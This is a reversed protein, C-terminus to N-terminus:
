PLGPKAANWAAVVDRHTPINQLFSNRWAADPITAAQALLANVARALWEAARADGAGSTTALVRYCTLEILRPEHLGEMAAGGGLETLLVDVERIALAADGEELAVRALGASADYHWPSGIELALDRAQQFADRAAAHQGLALEVDGLWLLSHSERDRARTTVASDLQARALSLAEANDGRWLALNSLHGLTVGEVVRDGNARLMRLAEELDRQAHALEGLNLWTAGLNSLSIAENQRDGLDRYILLNQRTMELAGVVDGKLNAVIALANLLFAENKRLGRERAEPLGQEAFASGGDMDGQMARAVSLLRLAHLRLGHNGAQTALAILQRATSECAPWDAMRMARYGRRWAVYAHCQGDDIVDALQELAEISAMQETRRGQLELTQERVVLLRWRLAADVKATADSQQELLSLAKDVHALATDHGFRERAHEAARAHFEAANASDGAREYHEAITGLFDSARLGTLSALWQAVKAHLERKSRKLVTDYTVQHLIQHHFAYERLEDDGMNKAADARPLALERQVLDPLTRRAHADLAILAQDWFVPGIVSAQQLTLKEQPPLGDLRAQLVGTLTAAGRDSSAQGCAADM